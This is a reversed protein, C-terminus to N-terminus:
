RMKNIVCKDVVFLISDKNTWDTEITHPSFPKIHWANWKSCLTKYVSSTQKPSSEREQDLKNNHRKSRSNVVLRSKKNNTRQRFNIKITRAM